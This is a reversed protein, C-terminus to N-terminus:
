SLNLHEVVCRAYNGVAMKSVVVDLLVNIYCNNNVDVLKCKIEYLETTAHTKAQFLHGTYLKFLLFDNNQMNTIFTTQYSLVFSDFDTIVSMFDYKM